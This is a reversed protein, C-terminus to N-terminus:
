VMREKKNNIITDMDVRTFVELKGGRTANCISGGHAEIYNRAILYGSESRELNGINIIEGPRMYDEIFYDKNIESTVAVSENSKGEFFGYNHDCGILYMERFGMMWALTILVFTVSGGSYIFTAEPNFKTKKISKVAYNIIISEKDKRIEKQLPLNSGMFKQYGKQKLISDYNQRFVEADTCAYFDPRWSTRSFIKYIKNCAFSYEHNKSLWELDEIRLSPGNGIIFCREGAYKNKYELLKREDAGYIHLAAGLAKYKRRVYRQLREFFTDM